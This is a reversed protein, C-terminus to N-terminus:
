QADLLIPWGKAAALPAVSLADPFSDGRAFVAGSVTGLRAKVQEAVLRATDYRDVGTLVM